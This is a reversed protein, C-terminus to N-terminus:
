PTIEITSSGSLTRNITVWLRNAAEDLSVYAGTDVDANVSLAVRNLSIMPLRRATYGEIVFIPNELPVGGPTITFSVGDAAARLHHTAYTDNYGNAVERLQSSLPGRPLESVLSGVTINSITADSLSEVAGLLTSVDGPQDFAFDRSNFRGKPGLVIFTAYARDGRGDATASYDFLDFSSAGVFGYPTGWGMLKTATAQGTPKGTSPDWDFNMLQYPWGQVCPMTYVRNDGVGTCDGRGPFAASSTAGRERGYVRDPLGMQKNDASTCVIGMEANTEAATASTFPVRNPQDYTWPSQLTLTDDLTGFRRGFDGWAVAGIADGAARNPAGDFNLSGYPGRTDMRYRNFDVNNPNIADSTKWNVAWVPHDRGTAIMWEIVVPIKVGNGGAEMDRDYLMEVRYIAHHGGAFITTTINTAPNAKGLPSNGNETNHSVVYGFGAHGWADDNASRAYETLGDFVTFDYQYLYAGLTMTRERGRSDRWTLLTTRDVSPAVGEPDYRSGGIRAVISSNTAVFPQDNNPPPPAPDGAPAPTESSPSEVSDPAPAESGLPAPGQSQVDPDGSLTGSQSSAIVDSVSGTTAPDGAPISDTASQPCGALLATALSGALMGSARVHNRSM